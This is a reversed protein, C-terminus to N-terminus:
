FLLAIRAGIQPAVWKWKPNIILPYAFQYDFKEIPLSEPGDHDAIDAASEDGPSYARLENDPAAVRVGHTQPTTDLDHV